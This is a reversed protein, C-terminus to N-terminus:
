ISGVSGSYGGLLTVVSFQRCSRMSMAPFQPLTPSVQSRLHESSLWSWGHCLLAVVPLLAPVTGQWMWLSLPLDGKRRGRVVLFPLKSNLWLGWAQSISLLTWALLPVYIQTDPNPRSGLKPRLVQKLFVLGEAEAQATM